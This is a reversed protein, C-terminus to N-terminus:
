FSLPCQSPATVNALPSCWGQCLRTSPPDYEYIFAYVRGLLLFILMLCKGDEYLM